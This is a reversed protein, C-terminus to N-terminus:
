SSRAQKAHGPLGPAGRGGGSGNASLRESNKFNDGLVSRNEQSGTAAPISKGRLRNPAAAQREAGQAQPLAM